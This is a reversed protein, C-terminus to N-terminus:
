WTLGGDDSRYVRGQDDVALVRNPQVPSIAVTLITGKLTTPTWVDTAGSRRYVGNTTAALLTDDAPTVALALVQVSGPLAAGSQMWTVGDDTSHLVGRETGLLLRQGDGSVALAM